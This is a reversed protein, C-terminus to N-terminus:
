IGDAREKQVVPELNILKLNKQSSQLIRNALESLEMKDLRM